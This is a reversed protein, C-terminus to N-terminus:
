VTELLTIEANSIFGTSLHANAVIKILCLKLNDQFILCTGLSSYYYYCSSTFASGKLALNLSQM